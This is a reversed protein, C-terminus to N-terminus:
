YFTSPRKAVFTTKFKKSPARAVRHPLPFKIKPDIFQRIYPRRVDEAKVEAVRIIHINSFRARHRAAMDSDSLKLNALARKRPESSDGYRAM